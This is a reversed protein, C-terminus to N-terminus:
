YIFSNISEGGGRGYLVDHDHPEKINKFPWDTYKKKKPKAERATDQMEADEAQNPVDNTETEVSM